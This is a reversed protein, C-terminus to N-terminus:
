VSFLIFKTPLASSLILSSGKLINLNKLNIAVFPNNHLLSVQSIIFFLLFKNFLIELSLILSSNFLINNDFYAEKVM